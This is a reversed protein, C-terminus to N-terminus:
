FWFGPRIWVAAWSTSHHPQWGWDQIGWSATGQVWVRVAHHGGWWPFRASFTVSENVSQGPALTGLHWFATNNHVECGNNGGQFWWWWWHNGCFRVHLQGPLAIAVNVFRVNSSGVNTVTLTCTGNQGSYVSHPCSLATSIHGHGGTNGGISVTFSGAKVSGVANSAIVSYSFSGIGQPVWGNVLGTSTNIGLWSPAGSALHYTPAPNGKAAFTYQYDQSANATSPPSDATFSPPTGVWASYPSSASTAFSGWGSYSATLSYSGFPVNHLMCSGTTTTGSVAPLSISCSYPNNAVNVVVKGPPSATGSSATVSVDVKLAPPIGPDIPMQTVGTISTATTISTDALATGPMLLAAGVLGGATV